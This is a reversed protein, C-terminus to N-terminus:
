VYYFYVSVLVVFAGQCFILTPAFNFFLAAVVATLLTSLSSLLVKTLSNTQKTINSILLGNLVGNVVMLVVWGSTPLLVRWPDAELRLVNFWGFATSYTYLWFNPFHISEGHTTRKLMLENLVAALGSFFCQALVISIGYWSGQLSDDCSYNSIAAGVALLSLALSQVATVLRAMVLVYLLATTLIKLNQLLAFLPASIYDLATFTLNNNVTYLLAPLMLLLHETASYHLLIERWRYGAFRLATASVLLKAAETLFVVGSASYPASTKSAVILLSNASMLFVSFAYRSLRCLRDGSTRLLLCDVISAKRMGHVFDEGSM